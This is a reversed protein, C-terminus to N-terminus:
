RRVHPTRRRPPGGPRRRAHDDLRWRGLADHWRWRHRRRCLVGRARHRHRRTRRGGVGQLLRQRGRPAACAGGGPRWTRKRRPSRCPARPRRTPGDVRRRHARRRPGRRLRPRPARRDPGDIGFGDWELLVSFDTPEQLELVFVGADICHPTSAPVLVGDGVDVRVPHLLELMVDIAQDEVFEAWEARRVPRTTGVFVTGGDSPVDLVVWAETKGFPCGLHASAFQRNPHVHVPLRQGADLLKVLLATSTGWRSAHEPGLWVVPDNAVLDHLPGLEPLSTLGVGDTGWRAVTSALWEEPQQLPVTARPADVPTSVSAGRLAAIREGGRYFHEVVNPALRHPRLLTM